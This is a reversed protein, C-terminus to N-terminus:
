PTYTVNDAHSVHRGSFNMLFSVLRQTLVNEAGGGQTFDCFVVIGIIWSAFGTDGERWKVM